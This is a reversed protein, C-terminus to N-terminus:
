TEVIIPILAKLEDLSLWGDGDKVVEEAEQLKILLNKEAREREKLVENYNKLDSVSLINPM